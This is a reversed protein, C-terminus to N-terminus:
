LLGCRKLVGKGMGPGTKIEGNALWDSVAAEHMKPITISIAVDENGALGDNMNDFDSYDESLRDLDDGDYGTGELLERGDKALDALVEALQAEDWGGLEVIRNDALLYAEAEQESKFSLGRIVPVHWMNGEKIIRAPLDEGANMKQMLTDLRGHGAVLRGTNEDILVPSTFGFREMSKHIVGLDHQKPNRPWRILEDLPIYEIKLKSM